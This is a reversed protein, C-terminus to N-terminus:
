RRWSPVLRRPGRLSSIPMEVRQNCWGRLRLCHNSNGLSHEERLRLCHNSSCRSHGVRLRLCHNSSGLSHEVRLRLCHNNTCQSHGVRLRLCQNSSCQSHGARLCHNSPHSMCQSHEGRLRLCHNGAMGMQLHWQTPWMLGCGLMKLRSRTKVRGRLGMPLRSGIM